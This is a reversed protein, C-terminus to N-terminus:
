SRSKGQRTSRTSRIWRCSTNTSDHLLIDFKHLFFKGVVPGDVIISEDDTDAVPVDMVPPMPARKRKKTQLNETFVRQSTTRILKFSIVLKQLNCCEPPTLRWGGCTFISFIAQHRQACHRVLKNPGHDVFIWSVSPFKVLFHPHCPKFLVGFHPYNLKAPIPTLPCPAM